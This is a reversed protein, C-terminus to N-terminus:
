GLFPDHVKAQEGAKDIAVKFNGTKRDLFECKGLIGYQNLKNILLLSGKKVEEDHAVTRIDVNLYHEPMRRRLMLSLPMFTPREDYM